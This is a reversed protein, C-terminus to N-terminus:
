VKVIVAVLATPAPGAESCELATVGVAGVAGAAGVSTMAVGPSLLALTVQAAGDFPPLAIVCYVTVGYTPEVAWGALVTVPEGGAVLAVIPPSVL